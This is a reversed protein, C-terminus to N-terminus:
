KKSKNFEFDKQLDLNVIGKLRNEIKLEDYKGFGLKSFPLLEWRFVNPYNKIIKKYGKLMEKSDNINPIIVTRIWVKKNLTKCLDLFQLTKDLSGLAYKQYSENTPFKLDCIVYDLLKLIETLKADIEVNASTEVISKIDNKLFCKVASLVFDKQLLPEGGSFTIGGDDGYYSKYHILKDVLESVTIKQYTSCGWTEPNHCCACRLNCGHLFVVSRIGSGDLTSYSDIKNIYGVENCKKM